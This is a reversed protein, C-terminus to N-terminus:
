SVIDVSPEVTHFGEAVDEGEFDLVFVSYGDESPIMLVLLGVGM